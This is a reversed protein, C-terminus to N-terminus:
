GGITYLFINIEPFLVQDLGADELLEQVVLFNTLSKELGLSITQQIHKISLM